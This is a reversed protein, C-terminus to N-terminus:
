PGGNHDNWIFKFQCFHSFFFLKPNWHLHRCLSCLISGVSNFGTHTRRRQWGGSGSWWQNMGWSWSSFMPFCHNDMDMSIGYIFWLYVTIGLINMAFDAMMASFVWRWRRSCPGRGRTAWSTLPTTAPSPGPKKPWSLPHFGTSFRPFHHYIPPVVASYSPKHLVEGVIFIIHPPYLTPIYYIYISCLM